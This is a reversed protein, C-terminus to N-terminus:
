RTSKNRKSPSAQLEHTTTIVVHQGPSLDQSLRLATHSSFQLTKARDERDERAKLQMNELQLGQNEAVLEAKEQELAHIKGKLQLILMKDELKNIKALIRSRAASFKNKILRQAKTSNADAMESQCKRDNEELDQELSDIMGQISKETLLKTSDVPTQSRKERKTAQKSATATALRAEPILIEAAASDVNVLKTPETKVMHEAAMSTTAALPLPTHLTTQLSYQLILSNSGKENALIDNIDAVQADVALGGPESLWSEFSNNKNLDIFEKWFDSGLELDQAEFNSEAGFLSM